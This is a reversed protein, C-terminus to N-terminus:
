KTLYIMPDVHEGNVTVELHLHPADAIELLMSDGVYGITTSASIRKGEVIGEPLVASLNCFKMTIGNDCVILVVNGFYADEYIGSIYGAFPASVPSNIEASIDIGSHTRYDSTTQNYIQMDPSFEKAITNSKVIDFLPAKMSSILAWHATIEIDSTINQLVLETQPEAVDATTWGIFLFGEKQPATLSVSANDRCNLPNTPANIGGNLHYTIKHLEEWKATLTISETVTYGWFSWAEDDIYWGVFECNEKTPATPRKVKEGKAVTQSAVASGGNSDFTVTFSKQANLAGGLLDNLWDEETGTYNYKECYLEYASKGPEGQPGQEGKEGQVGQIGQIGQVGQPGQVGQVGQLGQVGQDGKDGKEGQPGPIGSTGINCSSLLCVLCLLLSLVLLISFTNKM